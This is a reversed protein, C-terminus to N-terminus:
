SNMFTSVYAWWTSTASSAIPLLSFIKFFVEILLHASGHLIVPNYKLRSIEHLLEHSSSHITCGRLLDQILSITDTIGKVIRFRSLILENASPETSNLLHKYIESSASEYM